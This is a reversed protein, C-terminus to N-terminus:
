LSKFMNNLSVEYSDTWQNITGATVAKIGFAGLVTSGQMDIRRYFIKEGNKDWFSVVNKTKARTTPVIGGTAQTWESFVLVVADVKLTKCLERAKEATIDGKKFAAGFLPMEKKKLIPSYVSVQIDEAAKRYGAEAVFTEAKRVQWHEALTKETFTLMKVTSGRMLDRVSTGGVSGSDVSGGWDSIALSVVAVKKLEPNGKIKATINAACGTLGLLLVVLGAVWLRKQM